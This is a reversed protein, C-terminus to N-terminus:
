EWPEDHSFLSPPVGILSVDFKLSAEVKSSANHIRLSVAWGNNCTIIVTNDSKSKYSIDYFKDPMILQQIKTQPHVTGASRNLSKYINFAQIKTVKKRDNAIIKYFDNKGLLYQLLRKPIEYPNKKSLLQLEDMFANLLPVYFRGSKNIVNRWLINKDRLEKLEGFLPAITEFYNASCTIGFWAQGFNLTASLRSHKVASHNHKCSLGIEWENQKRIALVDRVDGDKGKSDEQIALFLPTNTLPNELQPEMGALIKITSLAGLDLNHRINENLGNYFKEAVKLASTQVIETEQFDKLHINLAKLCAYEFAKGRETQTTSM